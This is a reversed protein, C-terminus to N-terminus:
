RQRAARRADVIQAIALMLVSSTWAYYGILLRHSEACVPVALTSAWLALLACGVSVRPAPAIVAALAALDALIWSLYLLALPPCDRFILVARVATWIAVQLGYATGIYGGSLLLTPLAFSALFLCGGAMHLKRRITM